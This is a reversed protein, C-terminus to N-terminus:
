KCPLTVQTLARVAPGAEIAQEDGGSWAVRRSACATGPVVCPNRIMTEAIAYWGYAAALDKAAGNKGYQLNEAAQM